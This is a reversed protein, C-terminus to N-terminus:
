RGTCVDQRPTPPPYPPYFAKLARGFLVASGHHEEPIVEAALNLGRYPGERTGACLASVMRWLNGIMGPGELGGVSLFVQKPLGTRGTRFRRERLFMSEGDWGYSPSMIAYRTFLDPDEFLVYTAFLGGLSHGHLARDPSTRYTRDILPLIEEKLVRHFLDARAPWPTSATDRREAGPAQFPPPSYDVNRGPVQGPVPRPFAQPPYYGVGVMIVNGTNGGRNTLRFMSALIPLHAGGDLVYLVPYRTTDGAQYGIPLAVAIHYERGNVTSRLVSVHTNPLTIAPPTAAERQARASAPLICAALAAALLRVPMPM